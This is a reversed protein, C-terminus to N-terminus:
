FNGDGCCDGSIVSLIFAVNIVVLMRIAIDEHDYLYNLKSSV